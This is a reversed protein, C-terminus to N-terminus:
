VRPIQLVLLEARAILWDKVAKRNAMGWTLCVAETLASVRYLALQEPTEGAETIQKVEPCVQAIAKIDTFDNNDTLGDGDVELLTLSKVFLDCTQRQDPTM